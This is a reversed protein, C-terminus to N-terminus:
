QDSMMRPRRGRSSSLDRGIPRNLFQLVSELAFVEGSRYLADFIASVLAYDEDNDVTWDHHSLNTKCAISAIGFRESHNRIWDAVYERDHPDVLTEHCWSLAEASIVEGSLGQPHTQPYKNSVYDVDREAYAVVLEAMVQPDVLPCDGDVKVVAVARTLRAAGSLRDAIDDEDQGRHVYMGLEAAYRAM